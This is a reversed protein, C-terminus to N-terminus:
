WWRVVSCDLDVTSTVMVGFLAGVRRSDLLGRGDGLRRQAVGGLGSRRRLLHVGCWWLGGSVLQQELFSAGLALSVGFADGDEPISFGSRPNGGACCSHTPSLQSM